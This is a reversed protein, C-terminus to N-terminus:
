LKLKDSILNAARTLELKVQEVENEIGIHQVFPIVLSALAYDNDADLIPVAIDTIGSVYNNPQQIFGDDKIKKASLDFKPASFSKGENEKFRDLWEKKLKKPLFAYILQGSASAVLHEQNGIRVSYGFHGPADVNAIVVTHEYLAVSIYCAQLTAQSLKNMIPAAIEQLSKNPPHNMGMEFLKITLIYRDSSEEQYIYGRQELTLTMRFIESRTRGLRKAIESMAMPMRELSLLELIDLGKDLAPSKYKKEDIVIM